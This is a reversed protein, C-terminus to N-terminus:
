SLLCCLQEHTDPPTCVYCLPIPHEFLQMLNISTIFGYKKENSSTFQEMGLFPIYQSFCSLDPMDLESLHLAQSKKLLESKKKIGEDQPYLEHRIAM